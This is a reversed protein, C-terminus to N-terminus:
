GDSMAYEQITSSQDVHDFDSAPLRLALTSHLVGFIRDGLNMGGAPLPFGDVDAQEIKRAADFTFDQQEAPFEALVLNRVPMRGFLAEGSALGDVIADGAGPLFLVLM